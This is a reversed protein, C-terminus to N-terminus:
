PLRVLLVDCPLHHVVGDIPSPTFLALGHRHHAGCVLLDVTRQRATVVIARGITPSAIALTDIQVGGAHEAVMGLFARAQAMLRNDLSFPVPQPETLVREAEGATTGGEIGFLPVDAEGGASLARQDVVHLLTIRAGYRRAVDGAQEIIKRGDEAQDLAVMVHQYTRV